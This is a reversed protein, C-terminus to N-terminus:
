RQDMQAARRLIAQPSNDIRRHAEKMQEIMDRGPTPAHEEEQDPWHKDAGAKLLMQLIEPCEDAWFLLLDQLSFVDGVGKIAGLVEARERAGIISWRVIAEVASAKADGTERDM